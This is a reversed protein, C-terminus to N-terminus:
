VSACSSVKNTIDDISGVPVADLIIRVASNIKGLKLDELIDYFDDFLQSIIALEDAFKYFLKLRTFDKEMECIATIGIKFILQLMPM